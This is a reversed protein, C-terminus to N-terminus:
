LLTRLFETELNKLFVEQRFVAKLPKLQDLRKWDAISLV